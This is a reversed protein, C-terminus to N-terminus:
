ERGRESVTVGEAQGIFETFQNVIRGAEEDTSLEPLGNRYCAVEYELPNYTIPEEPSATLRDPDQPIESTWGFIHVTEGLMRFTVYNPGSEPRAGGTAVYGFKRAFARLRHLFRERAGKKLSIDLECVPRQGDEGWWKRFSPSVTVGAKNRFHRSFSEALAKMRDAESDADTGYGLFEVAYRQPDFENGAVIVTEGGHLYFELFGPRNRRMRVEFESAAGYGQLWGPFRRNSQADLTVALMQVVPLRHWSPEEANRAASGGAAPGTLMAMLLLPLVLHRM